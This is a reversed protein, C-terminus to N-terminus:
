LVFRQRHERFALRSIRGHDAPESLESLVGARASNRRAEPDYALFQDEAIGGDRPDKVVPCIAYRLPDGVPRLTKKIFGKSHLDDIESATAIIAKSDLDRGNREALENMMKRGEATTLAKNTYSIWVHIWLGLPNNSSYGHRMDLM